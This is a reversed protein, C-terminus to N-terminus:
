INSLPKNEKNLNLAMTLIEGGENSQVIVNEKKGILVKDGKTKKLNEKLNIIM